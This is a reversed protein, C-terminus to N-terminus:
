PIEIVLQDRGVRFEHSPSERWVSMIVLDWYMASHKVPKLPLALGKSKSKIVFPTNDIIEGYVIKKSISSKFLDVFYKLEENSVPRDDYGEIGPRGKARDSVHGESHKIVDLSVTVDLNTSLRLIRKELLLNLEEKILSKIGM